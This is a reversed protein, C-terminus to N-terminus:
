VENLYAFEGHLRKAYVNYAIAADIEKKFTGIHYKKRKCCIAAQWIGVRSVYSVGKYKSTSKRTIPKPRNQSNGAITCLRLNSLQNNLKDGDIHDVCQGKKANIVVRHMVLTTRKGGISASRQPYGDRNVVWCRQSLKDYTEDDVKTFTCPHKKTSIDLIKM